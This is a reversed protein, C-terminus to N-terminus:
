RQFRASRSFRVSFEPIVIYQHEPEVRRRSYDVRNCDATEVPCTKVARLHALFMTMVSFM